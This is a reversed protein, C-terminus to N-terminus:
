YSDSCSIAEVTPRRPMFVSQNEFDKNNKEINIEDFKINISM